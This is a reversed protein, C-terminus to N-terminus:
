PLTIELTRSLTKPETDESDDLPSYSAEVKLKYTGRVLPRDTNLKIERAFDSGPLLVGWPQRDQQAVLDGDPGILSWRGMPKLYVNGNNSGQLKLGLAGDEVFKTLSTVDMNAVVEGPVRVVVALAFRTSVKVEFSAKDDTLSEEATEPELETLSDPAVDVFMFGIHDGPSADPPVTVQFKVDTRGQPKLTVLEKEPALWTGVGSVQEGYLPGNLTGNPGTEAQGAYVRFDLPIESGNFIRVEQTSTEGPNLTLKYNLKGSRPPTASFTVVQAAASSCMLLLSVFITLITRMM